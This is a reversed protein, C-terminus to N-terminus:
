TIEMKISNHVCDQVAEDFVYYYAESCRIRLDMGM